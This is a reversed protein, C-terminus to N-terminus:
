FQWQYFKLIVLESEGHTHTLRLESGPWAPFIQDLESPTSGTPHSRWTLQWFYTLPSQDWDQPNMAHLSRALWSWSSTVQAFVEQVAWVPGKHESPGVSPKCNWSWWGSIGFCLAGRKWKARAGCPMDGTRSVCPTYSGWSSPRALWLCAALYLYFGHLECSLLNDSEFLEKDQWNLISWYHLEAWALSQVELDMKLKKPVTNAGCNLLNPVFLVDPGKCVSFLWLTVM